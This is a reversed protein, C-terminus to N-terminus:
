GGTQRTSDIWEQVEARKFRVMGMIRYHPPGKRRAVWSRVASVSAGAMKAVEPAKIWEDDADLSPAPQTGSPRSKIDQM